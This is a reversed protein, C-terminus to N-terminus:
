YKIKSIKAVLQKPLIKKIARQIHIYKPIKYLVKKYWPIWSTDGLHHAYTNETRDTERLPYFYEQPYITISKKEEEKLSNISDSLVKNIIIYELNNYTDYFHVLRELLAHKSVSGVFQFGFYDKQEHYTATFFNNELLFDPIDQLLIEDTDLYIGGYKYLVHVRLVDSAFAWKKDNKAKFYYEPLEFEVERSEDWISVEFSKAYKQVAELASVFSKTKKNGGLWIFHIRKPIM